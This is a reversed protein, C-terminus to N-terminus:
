TPQRLEEIMRVTRATALVDHVRLVRVGQLQAWVHVAQTGEGREDVPLGGLVRGIFSKRSVGLLIPYGTKVFEGVGRILALNHAETKGFGIGPDLWIHDSQVGSAELVAAQRLLFARVEAVVDDYAPAAQMTQPEGQMHMVCVGCKREAVLALMGEGRLGRVDNVLSAGADLARAAVAAKMTDISVAIGRSVLGEIVPIVRLIEDDASVPAAGPRTSEGGVDVLDAGQEAMAMGFDIAANADAFRGGDSFSDPTVNLIGM